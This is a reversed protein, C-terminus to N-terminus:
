RMRPLTSPRSENPAIAWRIAVDALARPVPVLFREHELVAETMFGDARVIGRESFEGMVCDLGIIERDTGCVGVETPSLLM